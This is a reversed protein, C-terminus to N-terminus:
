TSDMEVMVASGLIATESDFRAVRLDFYRVVAIGNPEKQFLQMIVYGNNWRLLAM